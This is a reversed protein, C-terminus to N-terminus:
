QPTTTSTYQTTNAKNKMTYILDNKPWLKLELGLDKLILELVETTPLYNNDKKWYESLTDQVKKRFAIYGDDYTKITQILENITYQKETITEHQENLLDCYEKDYRIIRDNERDIVGDSIVFSDEELSKNQIFRKNETM